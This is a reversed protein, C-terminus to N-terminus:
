MSCRRPFHAEGSLRNNISAVVMGRAALSALLGPFDGFTGAHRSDGSNWGGGHVFILGPRPFSKGEPLYLDLTLPRFGKLESYVMETMKVGNPFVITQMPYTKPVDSEPTAAVATKAAPAKAAAAPKAPAKVPATKAAPKSPTKVPAAALVLPLALMLSVARIKNM